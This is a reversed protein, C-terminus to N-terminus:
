YIKVCDNYVEFEEKDLLNMLEEKKGYMVPRGNKQYFSGKNIRIGFWSYRVNEQGIKKEYRLNEAIASLPLEQFCTARIDGNVFGDNGSAKLVKDTLIKWLNKFAEDDTKGRTLHTIRVVLDSRDENRRAWNNENIGM